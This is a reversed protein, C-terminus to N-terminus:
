LGAGDTVANGAGQHFVIFGQTLGEAVGSEDGAIGALYLTLLDSAALGAASRLVGLTLASRTSVPVRLALLRPPRSGLSSRITTSQFLAVSKIRAALSPPLTSGRFHRPM